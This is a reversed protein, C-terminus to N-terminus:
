FYISFDPSLRVRSVEPLKFTLEEKSEEDAVTFTESEVDFGTLEGTFTKKGERAEYLRVEVREGMCFDFHEPRELRREMGPTSVELSYAGDIIDDHEDLLADLARSLAECADIDAGEERDIYVSLTPTGGLKEFKVDWLMLGQEHCLPAAIERVADTIKSM